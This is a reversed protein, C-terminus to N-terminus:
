QVGLVHLGMQVATLGQLICCRSIAASWRWKLLSQRKSWATGGASCSAGTRADLTSQLSGPQADLTSQLSGVKLLWQARCLVLGLIGQARCLVLSLM